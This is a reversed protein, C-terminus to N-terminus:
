TIRQTFQEVKKYKRGGIVVFQEEEKKQAERAREAKDALYCVFDLLTEIDTDDLSALSTGPVATIIQYEM